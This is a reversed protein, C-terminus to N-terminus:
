PTVSASSASFASPPVQFRLDFRTGRVVGLEDATSSFGSIEVGSVGPAEQWAVVQEAAARVSPATAPMTINGGVDATFGQYRVSPLTRSEVLRFFPAWSRHQALLERLATARRATSRYSQLDQEAIAARARADAHRAELAIVFAQRDRLHPTVLFWPVGILLLALVVGGIAIILAGATPVEAGRLGSPILSIDRSM